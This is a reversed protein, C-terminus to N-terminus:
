KRLNGKLLKIEEEIGEESIGIEDKKLVTPITKLVIKTDNLLSINDIYLLDYEIKKLVNISNRGKVQALGTIGPLVSLRKKQENDFYKYYEPIWPRPGVISMDGKIVNIFQPIEDLSTKRLIKGVKTVTCKQNQKNPEVMSRFKYIKFIRGNKGVRESKYIVKGNKEMLIAVSIILSPICLLVLLIISLIIDIIRKGYKKYNMRVKESMDTSNITGMDRISNM